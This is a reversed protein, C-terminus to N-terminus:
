LLGEQGATWGLEEFVPRLSQDFYDGLALEAEPEGSLGNAEQLLADRASVEFKEWDEQLGSLMSASGELIQALEDAVQAREHTEIAYSRQLESDFYAAGSALATLVEKIECAETEGPRIKFVINDPLYECAGFNTVLAPIGAMLSMPLYPACQGYVSFLTHITADAGELLQGWRIPSRGEVLEFRNVSFEGLMAEARERELRDILWVFNLNPVQGIAQLVKHARHEIRPTGCYIVTKIGRGPRERQALQSDVPYPLYFSGPLNHLYRDAIGKPRSRKWEDLNRENSFLSIASFAAERVAYPGERHYSKERDPWPLDEGGFRRVVDPFPSNLMPEPGYTSLIYDHFYVVGPILGLHCRVFNTRPHDELHYFFIDFPNRRHLSFAKLYHHTPYDRYGEFGGHFLEIEFRERLHPLALETFYGAPSDGNTSSISLPSFWAVRLRGSM